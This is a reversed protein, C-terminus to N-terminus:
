VMTACCIVANPRIKGGTKPRKRDGYPMWPYLTCKPLECSYGGDAYGGICDYCKAYIAQRQTLREGDLHMRLEKRGLARMGEEAIGM